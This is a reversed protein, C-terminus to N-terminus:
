RELGNTEQEGRAEGLSVGISAKKSLGLYDVQFRLAPWKAGVQCFLKANASEQAPAVLGTPLSSSRSRYRAHKSLSLMLNKKTGRPNGRMRLKDFSARRHEMASM